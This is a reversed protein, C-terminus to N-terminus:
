QTALASRILAELRASDPTEALRLDNVLITPTGRGGVKRADAIDREVQPLTKASGICSNFASENPVGVRRALEGFPIIGLSDQKAFLLYHYDDFRGQAAACEAARVAPYALRHSALPWDRVVFRVDNPHAARIAHMASAFRRCFPCEYDSFVVVTVPASARGINHGVTGYERWNSIRAETLAPRASASKMPSIRDRIAFGTLVVACLAAGITAIDVLRDFLRTRPPIQAKDAPSSSQSRVM